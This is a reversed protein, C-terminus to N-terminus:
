NKQVQKTKLKTFVKYNKLAKRELNIEPSCLILQCKTPPTCRLLSTTLGDEIEQCANDPDALGCELCIPNVM